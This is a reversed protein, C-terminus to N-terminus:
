GSAFLLGEQVSWNPCVPFCVARADAKRPFLCLPCRSSCAGIVWCCFVRASCQSKWGSPREPWETSTQSQGEESDRQGAGDRAAWSQRLTVAEVLSAAGVAADWAVGLIQADVELGRTSPPLFKLKLKLQGSNTM